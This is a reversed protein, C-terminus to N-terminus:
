FERQKYWYKDFLDIYSKLKQTAELLMHLNKKAQNRSIQYEPDFCDQVEVWMLKKRQIFSIVFRLYFFWIIILTLVVILPVMVFESNVGNNFQDDM